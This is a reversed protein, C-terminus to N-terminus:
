STITKQEAVPKIYKRIIEPRKNGNWWICVWYGGKRFEYVVAMYVGDKESYHRQIEYAQDETM